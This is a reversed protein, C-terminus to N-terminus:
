ALAKRVAVRKPVSTSSPAVLLKQRTAGGFVTAPLHSVLPGSIIYPGGHFMTATSPLVNSIQIVVHSALM